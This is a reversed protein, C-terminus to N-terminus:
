RKASESYRRAANQQATRPRRRVPSAPAPQQPAPAQVPAPSQMSVQGLQQIVGQVLRNVEPTLVNLKKMDSLYQNLTGTLKRTYGAVLSNGAGAQYAGRVNQLNGQPSPQNGALMDGAARGATAINNGLAKAGQYAGVARHKLNSFLGEAIAIQREDLKGNEIMELLTKENLYGSLISREFSEYQANEYINHSSELKNHGSITHGVFFQQATFVERLLLM